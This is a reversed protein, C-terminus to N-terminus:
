FFGTSMSSSRARTPSSRSNMLSSHSVNTALLERITSSSSRASEAPSRATTLAIACLSFPPLVLMQACSSAFSAAVSSFSAFSFGIGSSCRQTGERRRANASAASETEDTLAAHARDLRTETQQEDLVLRGLAQHQFALERAGPVDDVGRFVAFRRECLN